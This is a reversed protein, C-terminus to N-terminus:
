IFQSGKEINISREVDLEQHSNIYVKLSGGIWKQRPFMFLIAPYRPVARAGMSIQRQHTFKSM